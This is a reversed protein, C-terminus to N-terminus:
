LVADLVSFLLDVDSADNYLHPAIRISDGRVSVYVGEGALAAALGEPLGDSARLGIMHAARAGRPITSLGRDSSRAEISATISGIAAGVEEIGWDLLQTLAATAMPVLHFNSREGVDYRRAGPAYEDVYNVLDSFDEAGSRGIWSQELPIGDRHQPAAWLYGLGFPGLLWKYGVAVVFDPKIASTDFPMAGLSQSADVVLAAGVSRAAEGVPVLDLFSGDTWHCNPVAVVATQADIASLVPETWAGDAPRAVVVIEGGSQELASRWPYVNAPFQEELVVVTRAPGVKLNSAAVGIGYSVAPVLAVGEADAGIVTAFLGRLREVPEFFDEIAITWPAAAQDLSEVGAEYVARLQPSLYAANLYTVDDPIDFLHRQSGRITM